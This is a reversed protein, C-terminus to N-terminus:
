PTTRAGTTVPPTPSATSRQPSCTRRRRDGLARQPDRIGPAQGVVGDAARARPRGRVRHEGQPRRAPLGAHLVGPEGAARGPRALAQPTPTMKLIAKTIAASSPWRRRGRTADDPEDARPRQDESRRRPHDPEPVQRDGRDVPGRHWTRGNLLRATGAPLLAHNYTDDYYVNTTGPRGGTLQAVMGPFSDSPFTTQAHTYETGSPSWLPWHPTRISLSTAPLIAKTCGTWPCCCSTSPTPATCPQPRPRPRWDRWGSGAPRHERWRDPRHFSTEHNGERRTWPPRACAPDVLAAHHGHFRGTFM